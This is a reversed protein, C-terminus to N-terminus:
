TRRSATRNGCPQGSFAWATRRLRVTLATPQISASEGGVRYATKGDFAVGEAPAAQVIGGLWLGAVASVLVLVWVRGIGRKM